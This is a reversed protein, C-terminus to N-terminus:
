LGLLNGDRYLISTEKRRESTAALGVLALRRFGAERLADLGPRYDERDSDDWVIVGGPKLAGPANAACHVRDRGDIVVVDFAGPHGLIRRSYAGGPELPLLHLEVHAPARARIREYWAPDHEVAVLRAVRGAWWLTSHGSGFEFVTIDRPLRSSLLELAPYTLLPIPEGRADVPARRKYSEFWGQTRLYSERRFLRAVAYPKFRPKPM